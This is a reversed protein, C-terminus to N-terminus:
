IIYYGSNIEKLYKNIKETEFDGVYDFLFKLEESNVRCKYGANNYLKKTQM